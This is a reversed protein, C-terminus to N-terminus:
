CVTQNMQVFLQKTIGQLRQAYANAPIEKVIANEKLVSYVTDMYQQLSFQYLYHISGMSELSFYIRSTM